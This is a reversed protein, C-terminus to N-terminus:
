LQDVEPDLMRATSTQMLKQAPIRASLATLWPTTLIALVGPGLAPRASAWAARWMPFDPFGMPSGASIVVYLLVLGIGLVAGFMSGLFGTLLGEMSILRLIQETTAGIARLIELERQREVISIVTMNVVGLAAAMIALLLLGNMAVGVSKMGEKQYETMRAVDLIWVGTTVKALAQLDPLIAQRDPESHPFVIISVPASLDFHPLANASIISAGVNTPGIGAVTCAIAGNPTQLRIVGGLWADNSQAVGPTVFLVCGAEALALASDWDGYSFSFLFDGASRLDDIPLIYSFYAEGLFSIEPALVFYAEVITGHEGVLVEVQERFNPPLSFQSVSRFAELGQEVDIPFFGVAPREKLVRLRHASSCNM